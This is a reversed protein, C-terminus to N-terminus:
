KYHKFTYLITYACYLNGMLIYSLLAMIKNNRSSSLLYRRIEVANKNIFKKTKKRMEENDCNKSLRLISNTIQTICRGWQYRIDVDITKGYNILENIIYMLDSIRKISVGSRTISGIRIRYHYIPKKYCFVKSAKLIALPTFLSDEHLLGEKFSLNHSQWWQKNYIYYPAGHEYQSCALEVGTTAHRGINKIEERDDYNVYHSNFALLDINNLNCIIDPILDTEAWDDSDFFWIYKGQASQVGYNRASSLGGNEKEVIRIRDDQIREKIIKISNDKTGDNVIIIEYNHEIPHLLSNVCQEVYDEVNYVPIIISLKLLDNM